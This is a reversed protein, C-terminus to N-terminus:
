RLKVKELQTRALLSRFIAVESDDGEVPEAFETLTAPYMEPSTDVTLRKLGFPENDELAKRGFLSGFLRIFGAWIM